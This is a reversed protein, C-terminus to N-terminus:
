NDEDEEATYIAQNRRKFSPKQVKNEGVSENANEQTASSVEPVKKPAEVKEELTKNEPMSQPKEQNMEVDAAPAKPPPM